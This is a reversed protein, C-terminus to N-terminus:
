TGYVLQKYTLRKNKVRSVICSFMESPKLNRFNYKFTIEDVYKQLHKRSVKHWVGIISRKLHSWFGELRNTSFGLDTLFKGKAHEVVEREYESALGQYGIWDDTVLTTNKAIHEKILPYLTTNRINRTVFARVAGNEQVMGFVPTKDPYNRELNAYDIRKDKHRNKNKGGVFTEDIQVVGMLKGEDEQVMAKRIRHLMFWATRATVKITRALGPGTLGKKNVGVLYM